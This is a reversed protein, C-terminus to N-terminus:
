QRGDLANGPYKCSSNCKRAKDGFMVHYYCYDSDAEKRKNDDKHPTIRSIHMPTQQKALWLTDGRRALARPDTFDDEAIQM